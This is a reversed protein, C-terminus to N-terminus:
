PVEHKRPSTTWLRGRGGAAACGSSLPCGGCSDECSSQIPRLRGMRELDELMIEVMAVSTNLREALIPSKLTGNTRIEDLLKELM